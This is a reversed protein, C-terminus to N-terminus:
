GAVLSSWQANQSRSPGGLSDLWRISGSSRVLGEACRAYTYPIARLQSPILRLLLVLKTYVSLIEPGDHPETM